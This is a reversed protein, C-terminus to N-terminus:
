RTKDGVNFCSKEHVFSRATTVASVKSTRYNCPKEQNSHRSAEPTKDEPARPPHCQSGNDVGKWLRTNAYTRLIGRQSKACRRWISVRAGSARLSTVSARCSRAITAINVTLSTECRTSNGFLSHALALTFMACASALKLLSKQGGKSRPPPPRRPRSPGRLRTRRPPSSNPLKRRPSDEIPSVARRAPPMRQFHANKRLPCTEEFLVPERPPRKDGYRCRPPLKPLKSPYV